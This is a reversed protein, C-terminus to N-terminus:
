RGRQARDAAKIVAFMPGHRRPDTVDPPDMAPLHFWDGPNAADETSWGALNTSKNGKMRIESWIMLM